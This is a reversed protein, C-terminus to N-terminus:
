VGYVSTDPEGIVREKPKPESTVTLVMKPSGISQARSETIESLELERWLRERLMSNGIVRAAAVNTKRGITGEVRSGRGAVMITKVSQMRRVGRKM